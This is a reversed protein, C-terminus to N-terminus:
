ECDISEAVALATEPEFEDTAFLYRTQEGCSWELQTGFPTEVKTASRGGITVTEGAGDHLRPATTTSVVITRGDDAAYEVIASMAGDGVYSAIGIAERELGAPLRTPENITLNTKAEAAAITDVSQPYPHVTQVVVADAPPEFTFRDDDDIDDGFSIDSYTWTRDIDEGEVAQKIPFLTKQDIWVDIQTPTEDPGDAESTELPIVFETNGVLVTIKADVTEDRPPRFTVRYTERGEITTEEIAAVDLEDFYRRQKEYLYAFHSDPVRSANMVTVRDAGVDFFWAREGDNVNRYRGDTTESRTAGDDRMWIQETYTVNGGYESILTATAASPPEAAEIQAELEAPTPTTGGDHGPLSVCGAALVVFVAVALATGSRTM